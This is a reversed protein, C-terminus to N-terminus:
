RDAGSDGQEDGEEGPAALEHILQNVRERVRDPAPVASKDIKTIRLPGALELTITAENLAALQEPDALDLSTGLGDVVDAVEAWRAPPLCWERVDRLVSLADDRIRDQQDTMDTM